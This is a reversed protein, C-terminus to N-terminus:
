TLSLIPAPRSATGMHRPQKFSYSGEINFKSAIAPFVDWCPHNALDDAVYTEISPAYAIRERSLVYRAIDAMVYLKPHNLSHMFCGKAAWQRLFPRMDIEMGAGLDTLFKDAAAKHSFYGLTDFNQYNFLTIAEQASYGKQWAWFCLLSHYDGTAGSFHSGDARVIYGMDPHYATYSIAPILRQKGAAEPFKSALESIVSNYQGQVVIYDCESVYKGLDLNGSRMGELTASEMVISVVSTYASMAEILKAIVGVQCNGIILIKDRASLDFSINKFKHRFFEKSRTLVSTVKAETGLAVHSAIAEESEPARGLHQLFAAIVYDRSVAM